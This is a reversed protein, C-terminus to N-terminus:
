TATTTDSDLAILERYVFELLVICTDLSTDSITRGDIFMRLDRLLRQLIELSFEAMSLTNFYYYVDLSYNNVEYCWAASSFTLM